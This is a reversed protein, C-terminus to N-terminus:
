KALEVLLEDDTMADSGDDTMSGTEHEVIQGELASLAACIEDLKRIRLALISIFTYQNYDGHM